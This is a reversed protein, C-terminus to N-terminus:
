TKVRWKDQYEEDLESEHKFPSPKGAGIRGGYDYGDPRLPQALQLNGDKPVWNLHTLCCDCCEIEGSVGAVFTRDKRLVIDMKSEVMKRLEGLIIISQTFGKYLFMMM